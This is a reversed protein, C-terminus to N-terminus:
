KKGSKKVKSRDISANKAKEKSQGSPESKDTGKTSSKHEKLSKLDTIGLNKLEPNFYELSIYNLHPFFEILQKLHEVGDKTINCSNVTLGDLKSTSAVKPSVSIKGLEVSTLDLTELRPLKTIGKLGIDTLPNNSLEIRILKSLPTYAMGDITIIQNKEMFLSELNQLGVFADAGIKTIKNKTIFLTKVDALHRFISGDITEIESERISLSVLKRLDANFVPLVKLTQSGIHLFRLQSVYQSPFDETRITATPVNIAFNNLYSHVKLIESVSDIGANKKCEKAKRVVFSGVQQDKADKKVKNALDLGTLTEEMEVLVSKIGKEPPIEDDSNTIEIKSDAFSLLM